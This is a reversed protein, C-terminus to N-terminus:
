SGLEGQDGEDSPHGVGDEGASESAIEIGDLVDRERWSTGMRNGALYSATVCATGVLLWIDWVKAPAIKNHAFGTAHAMHRVGTTVYDHFYRCVEDDGVFGKTMKLSSGRFANDHFLHEVTDFHFCMKVLLDSQHGILVGDTFAGMSVAIMPATMYEATHEVLESGDTPLNSGAFHRYGRRMILLLRSEYYHRMAMFGPALDDGQTAIITAEDSDTIEDRSREFSAIVEDVLYSM